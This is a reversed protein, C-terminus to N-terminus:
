ATEANPKTFGIQSTQGVKLRYKNVQGRFSDTPPGDSMVEDEDHGKPLLARHTGCEGYEGEVEDKLIIEGTDIDMEGIQGTHNIKMIRRKIDFLQGLTKKGAAAM